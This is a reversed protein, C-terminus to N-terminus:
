RPSELGHSGGIAFNFRTFIVSHFGFQAGCVVFQALSRVEGFDKDVTVLAQRITNGRVGTHLTFAQHPRTAFVGVAICLDVNIPARHEGM